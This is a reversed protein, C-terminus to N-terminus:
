RFLRVIPRCMRSLMYALAVTVAMSVVEFMGSNMGKYITGLLVFVGGHLLYIEYSINGLFSNLKNGVKLKSIAEFMFALITIGLVIKLFYDGLVAVSKLKLYSVGLIGSLVM